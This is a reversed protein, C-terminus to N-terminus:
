DRAILPMDTKYWAINIAQVVRTASDPRFYPAVVDHHFRDKGYADLGAQDAFELEWVHTWPNPMRHETARALAWNAIAPIKKPMELVKGEVEAIQAKSATPMMQFFMVRRILGKNLPRTGVSVPKYYAYDLKEVVGTPSNRNFYPMLTNMHYAHPGYGMVAENTAFDMDWVHTYLKRPDLDRGLSLRKVGPIEKTCGRVLDELKAVQDPKADDRVKFFMTRRIM